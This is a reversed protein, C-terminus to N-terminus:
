LARPPSPLAGACRLGRTCHTIHAVCGPPPAPATLSVSALSSNPTQACLSTCLRARAQRLEGHASPLLLAGRLAHLKPSLQEISADEELWEAASPAGCASGLVLDRLLRLEVWRSACSGSTHAPDSLRDVLHDVLTTHTLPALGFRSLLRPLQHSVARAVTRSMAMTTPRGGPQRPLSLTRISPVMATIARLSEDAARLFIPARSCGTPFLAELTFPVDEGEMPSGDGEQSGAAAAAAPGKPPPACPLIRLSLLAALQAQSAGDLLRELLPCLREIWELSKGEALGAALLRTVEDITLDRVGMERMTRAAEAAEPGDSGLAGELKAFALTRTEVEMACRVLSGNSAGSPGCRLVTRSVRTLERLETNSILSTPCDAVRPRFLADCPRVLDGSETVVCRVQPFATDAVRPLLISAPHFSSTLLISSTPIIHSPPSPAYHSDPPDTTKCISAPPRCVDRLRERMM